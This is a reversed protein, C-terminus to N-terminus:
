SLLLHDLSFVMTGRLFIRGLFRDLPIGSDNLTGEVCDDLICNNFKDYYKLTGTLIRGGTLELTLRQRIFNTFKIIPTQSIEAQM